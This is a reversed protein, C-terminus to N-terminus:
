KLYRDFFRLVRELNAPTEFEPGGHKAGELAAYTVKGPGLVARLSDAFDSGQAPPINCDATGHQILFPPDDKSIYNTPNTTRVREPVKQIPGGVLKSEPSDAANHTQPCGTGAFQQDMKLFDIPGFWDVVAQVRSSQNANGLEAGELAAVGATTGLLAV